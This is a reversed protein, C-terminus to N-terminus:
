MSLKKDAFLLLRETTEWSICEDTISVGYKLLSLDNPFKQNGEFLNSELMMGVLADNGERRQDIVNKWVFAQGQHKKGSNDHSCDVMIAENLGKKKLQNSAEEISIPDYNPRRDGGRMVIHSWPNGTTNVICSHGDADIGLFSQPSKTAVIANVAAALSGDTSNKFGIPMSLGSAMERHTQSETTRAGIAVWSVLGAIYQPTVPDLIETGTPIGMENIKLLLKRARRLGESINCTGDMCPDNILGKWGITTRPKEFYVRMVILLTKEVKKKLSSLKEAYELAAKEDHISCPGIVVLLRKDEKLLIKEIGRRGNLVTESAAESLPIEEKLYKPAILPIFEKIHIDYTKKM